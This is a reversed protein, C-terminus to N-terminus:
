SADEPWSEVRDHLPGDEGRALDADLLTGCSPCLAEILEFDADTGRQPGAASLPVRRLQAEEKWNAGPSAFAAGCWTCQISGDHTRQLYEGLPHGSRAVERRADVEGEPERGLREARIERRRARTAEADHNGGAVVVGYIERAAQESVLGLDVDLV